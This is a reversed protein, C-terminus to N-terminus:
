ARNLKAMDSYQKNMVMNHYDDHTPYFQYKTKDEKWGQFGAAEGSNSAKKGFKQEKSTTAKLRVCDAGFFLFLEDVSFIM